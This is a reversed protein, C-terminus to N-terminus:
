WKKLPCTAKPLMIKISLFCGCESCLGGDRKDCVNCQETRYKQTESIDKFDKLINELFNIM